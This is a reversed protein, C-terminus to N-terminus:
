AIDWETLASVTLASATLASATLIQELYKFFKVSCQEIGTQVGSNTGQLHIGSKM